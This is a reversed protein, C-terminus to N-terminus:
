FFVLLFRTHDLSVISPGKSYRVHLLTRYLWDIRHWSDALFLAGANKIASCELCLMDRFMVEQYSLFTLSVTVLLIFVVIFVIFIMVSLLVVLGTITTLDVNSLDIV